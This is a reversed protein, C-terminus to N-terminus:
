WGWPRPDVGQSALYEEEERAVQFARAGVNAIDPDEVIREDLREHFHPSELDLPGIFEAWLREIREKIAAHESSIPLPWRWSRRRAESEEKASPRILRRPRSIGVPLEQGDSATAATCV